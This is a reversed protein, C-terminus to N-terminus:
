SNLLPLKFLMRTFKSSNEKEQNKVRVQAQLCETLKLTVSDNGQLGDPQAIHIASLLALEEPDMDALGSRLRELLTPNDLTPCEFGPTFAARLLSNYLHVSVELHTEASRGVKSMGKELCKQFRCAQCRNRSVRDVPCVKEKHCTYDMNKQVTRRFFGKCGECSMVGYHYGSANDHCVVCIDRPSSGDNVPMGMTFFPQMIFCHDSNIGLFSAGSTHPFQFNNMPLQHLNTTM